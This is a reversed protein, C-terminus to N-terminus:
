SVIGHRVAYHTLEANTRMGMKHLIRTRHTSVTKVSLALDKAIESVTRGSAIMKLIELERNSLREHPEGSTEGALLSALTEALEPSVWRGGGAVKRIAEILKEPAAEKTLFGAAGARLARIAYQQESYVTLILVRADPREKRIEPLLEIGNGGQLSIDLLIVDWREARVRERVEHVSAAEGAVLIDDTESLAERLGRRLVPHDDAILVKIM